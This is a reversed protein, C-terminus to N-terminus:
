ILNRIRRRLLRWKRRGLLARRHKADDRALESEVIEQQAQEQLHRDASSLGAGERYATGYEGTCYFEHDRALVLLLEYDEYLSHAENYGGAKKLTDTRVIYDRMISDWKRTIILDDRVNGQLYYGRKKKKNKTRGDATLFNVVSYAIIDGGHEQQLKMELALKETNCYTDDADIFTIYETDALSLGINRTSSVGTNRPKYHARVDPYTKTLADIVSRSDDTSGDDVIIVAEPKLSQAEISEVCKKLFESKNYNPVIVTLNSRM